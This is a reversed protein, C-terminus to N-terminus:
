EYMRINVLLQNIRESINKRQEYVWEEDFDFKFNKSFSYYLNIKQYYTELNELTSESEIPKTLTSNKRVFYEVVFDIFTECLVDNGVDFPLKMLKWQTQESLKYKKVLELILLYDRVDMKRYLPVKEERTAWLALKEKLPLEEIALLAESPGLVAQEIPEDETCINEKIFPTKRGSANVYGIEYIGKRGARGAIQKVEQSTLYRVEEGDFKKIDMFVIRRIPLNVGMGIADTSVLIENEKTIFDQYQLKRVEPPLDGYIVSTKMGREKYHAALELVRKKSFTILADGPMAGRLDFYAEEVELPVNRIYTKIEIEDECDELIARLIEEANKAGCIHLEECRLGLVARTWAAGRQSDGIMQIEDIVAVQFSQNIDLKEVTSSIHAAGEVQIEEEGTLLHCKVGEENLKEYIELALIRLPALYIGSSSQMLRQLAHYTKGTNTEGLHLYVKRKMQRALTYEDKPNAPFYVEFAAAIRKPIHTKMLVTIIGSNLYEKPNEAIIESLRYDKKSKENYDELLRQSLDDLLQRYGEYIEEFGKLGKEKMQELAKLKKRVAAEHSWLKSVRTYAVIERIQRLQQKLIKLEKEMQRNKKM